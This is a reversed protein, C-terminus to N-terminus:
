DRPHEQALSLERDMHRRGHDSREIAVRKPTLKLFGFRKRENRYILKQVRPESAFDSRRIGRVTIGSAAPVLKAGDILLVFDLDGVAGGKRLRDLLEIPNQRSPTEEFVQFVDRLDVVQEGIWLEPAAPHVDGPRTPTEIHM